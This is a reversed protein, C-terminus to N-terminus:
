EVKDHAGAERDDKKEKALREAELYARYAATVKGWEEYCLAINLETGIAPDAEQSQEFATCALAFEKSALYKRGDDFLKDARIKQEQPTKAAAIACLGMLLAFVRM